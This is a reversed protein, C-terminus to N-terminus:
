CDIDAARVKISQQQPQLPKVTQKVETAEDIQKIPKALKIAQSPTQELTALKDVLISAKGLDDLPNALQEPEELLKCSPVIEPKIVPKAKLLKYAQKGAKQEISVESSTRRDATGCRKRKPLPCNEREWDIKTKNGKCNGRRVSGCTGNIVRFAQTGKCFQEM